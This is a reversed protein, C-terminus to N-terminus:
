YNGNQVRLRASQFKSLPKEKEKVAKARSRSWADIEDRHFLLRSGHKRAPIEANHSKKYLTSVSLKTYASCEDIDMYPSM